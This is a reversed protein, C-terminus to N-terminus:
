NHLFEFDFDCDAETQMPLQKATQNFIVERRTISKLSNKKNKQFLPNNKETKWTM